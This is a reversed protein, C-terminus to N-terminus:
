GARPFSDQDVRCQRFRPTVSAPYRSTASVSDILNGGPGVIESGGRLFSKTRAADRCEPHRIQAVLIAIREVPAAMEPRVAMPATSCKRFCILAGQEPGAIQADRAVLL